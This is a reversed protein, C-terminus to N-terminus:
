TLPTNCYYGEESSTIKVYSEDDDKRERWTVCLDEFIKIAKAIYNRHTKDVKEDIEYPIDGDPWAFEEITKVFRPFLSCIVEIKHWLM